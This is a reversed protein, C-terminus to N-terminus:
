ARRRPREGVTVAVEQRKVGRLLTRAGPVYNLCLYAGLADRDLDRGGIGLAALPALESAFALVGEGEALLLPKEGFRDRALYTTREVRDYLAFAFMGELKAAVEVGWRAYGALIVETDSATRFEAGHARLDDRLEPYNYIEGNFTIVYRGDASFMPQAGTDLDIISLRRHALFVNPEHWCAGGDPGRHSLLNTARALNSVPPLDRGVLGFIGCM